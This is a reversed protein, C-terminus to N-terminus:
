VIALRLKYLRGERLNFLQRLRVARRIKQADRIQLSFDWGAPPYIDDGFLDSQFHTYM